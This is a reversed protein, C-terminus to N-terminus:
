SSADSKVGELDRKSRKPGKVWVRLRWWGRAALKVRKTWRLQWFVGDSNSSQLAQVTSDILNSPSSLTSTVSTSGATTTPAMTTTTTTTAATTTAATTTTMSPGPNCLSRFRREPDLREWIDGYEWITTLQPVLPMPVFALVRWSFVNLRCLAWEPLQYNYHKNFWRLQMPWGWRLAMTWSRSFQLNRHLNCGHCRGALPSGWRFDEHSSQNLVCVM